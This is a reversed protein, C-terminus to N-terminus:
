PQCNPDCPDGCKLWQKAFTSFDVFDVFCDGSLDAILWSACIYIRFLDDSVDYESLYHANRICVLCEHSNVDPIEWQYSGTNPVTDIAIWDAANNTSYEIFVNEVTGVTEWTIDYTSRAVLEEGGNPAFLTLINLEQAFVYASGSGGGNDDDGYAGVIVYDGSISVSIGFLDGAAGDSATLKAQETWSEGDRKFIYASGSSTGNDDDCGAGLIAYDGGIFVSNGFLDEAAGDSATLKAQEIWSAGDRKFIYASGSDDGNDDDFYAGVIAYDGCVSVSLGFYDSAAGDSALLKAQETWSIGDRKFIYASGSNSGNDDDNDAGVIAYDGSISVRGFKDGAAGDSATLKQQETWSIGDFYFIYASGSWDGNDDDLCAGVIAYDGSISVSCGFRDYAAGDSATLKAQQYWNNPDVDNPTFIYASGSDTENGDGCDAGIIAYEGSISVSFGFYDKAAGDSATLKAQQTWSTGDFYFVYASGTWGDDFFAGVIAYDGSISVSYGFKDGGEGDSALLKNKEPWYAQATGALTLCVIVVIIGFWKKNENGRLM